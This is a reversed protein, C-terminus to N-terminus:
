RYDLIILVLFYVIIGSGLVLSIKCNPVTFYIILCVIIAFILPAAIILYINDDPRMNKYESNFITFIKIISCSM